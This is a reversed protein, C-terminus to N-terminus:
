LLKDLTIPLDRIRKGTANFIANAIAAATGTIGIEGIGRAGLPTHPDPIDTWIVDIEPVDLHVPVHYEALSANMIRGSREDFETAETLALGIGMIIGGRFQSTATKPNLIRGCDFSGLFRRVRVEGTIANVGVEAFQAATSHMSYKMLELPMPASEEAEVSARQARALISTYTEFRTADTAHALGGDRAVVEDPKLGALPSDNGALKLLEAIVAEASAIVAALTAATQSSGGAMAGAPLSSEGYEFTVDELALGLRDAVHQVQVTATGMGMEHAATSVTATGDADLRLRAANGPMRYYPYTGTAVGMGILWEGERRSGPVPNRKDWGFRAAGDAYAKLLHRASFANGSTPDKEPEIRRRLEIPDIGLDFALEDLASELAFTGVSEGPARMFTNALMDLETIKQELRFNEAAYLHRAPFTFQEPCDNNASMAAVGSHILASLTGDASAGLAVRQETLTRGGVLRYVSERSLMLKVPRGALKSAAAALIQHSWLGKGGFGGGVFPSSVRVQEPQLGFIDAVNAATGGIMQTADHLILTEGEWRVTAAHLEIANHNHRPTRYVQDVRFAAAAHAAEADGIEMLPAEGLISGPHKAQAKAAGFATTAPEAEYTVTVLSAAHDAQEQTEALVVAVAEGNWHIAADQMVPLNSGSVGNGDMFAKPRNLRPANRYTMVLAVGPAAEAAATELTAIRGRAISSHVIAAHLLGEMAVEAAFRAQGQVKLNGDIRSVPTGVHGHRARLPAHTAGPLLTDPVYRLATKMIDMLTM